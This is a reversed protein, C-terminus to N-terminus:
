QILDKTVPKVESKPKEKTQNIVPQSTPWISDYAVKVGIGIVALLIASGVFQGFLSMNKLANWVGKREDLIQIIKKNSKALASVKADNKEHRYDNHIIYDNLDKQQSAIQALLTEQNGLIKEINSAFLNFVDKTVHEESV